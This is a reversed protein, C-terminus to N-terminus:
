KLNKLIAVLRKKLEPIDREVVRWTLVLDVGFYEHTLKDRMGVIQKWPIDPYKNRFPAPVSRAAEGIIEIRRIVKDQLDVSEIFHYEQKGRTYREVLVVCELMHRLLIKPDKGM